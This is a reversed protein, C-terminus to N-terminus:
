VAPRQRAGYVVICPAVVRTYRSKNFLECIHFFLCPFHPELYYYIICNVM